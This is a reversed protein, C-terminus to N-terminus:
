NEDKKFPKSYDPYIMDWVMNNLQQSHSDLRKFLLSKYPNDKIKEAYEKKDVLIKFEEEVKIKIETFKLILEDQTKKVWDYFEDPVKDLIEDLPKGEKLYEWIDRNSINTLIRHLRIYEDGKIKM